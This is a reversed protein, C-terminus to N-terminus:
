CFPVEAFLQAPDEFDGAYHILMNENNFTTRLTSSFVTILNSINCLVLGRQQQKQLKGRLQFIVAILIILM